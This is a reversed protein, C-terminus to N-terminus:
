GVRKGRYGFRCPQLTTQECRKALDPNTEELERVYRARITEFTHDSQVAADGLATLKYFEDLILRPPNWRGGSREQAESAPPASALSHQEGDLKVFLGGGSRSDSYRPFPKKM